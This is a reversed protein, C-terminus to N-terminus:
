IGYRKQDLKYNKTIELQTLARSYLAARKM